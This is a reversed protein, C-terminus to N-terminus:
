FFDQRPDAIESQEKEQKTYKIHKMHIKKIALSTSHHQTPHLGFTPVCGGKVVGIIKPLFEVSETM